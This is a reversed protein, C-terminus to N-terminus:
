EKVTADAAATLPQTRLRSRLVAAVDGINEAHPGVNAVEGLIEGWRLPIREAALRRALLGLRLWALDDPVASGLLGEEGQERAWAHVLWDVEQTGLFAPLNDLFLPELAGFVHALPGYGDEPDSSSGPHSAAHDAAAPPTFTAHGRLRPARNLAIVFEDPSLSADDHFTVTAVTVGFAEQIRTRIEGVGRQIKELLDDVMLGTGITVSVPEVAPDAQAEKPERAVGLFEDLYRQCEDAAEALADALRAGTQDHCRAIHDALRWYAEASPICGRWARGAARAAALDGSRGEEGLCHELWRLASRYEGLGLTAMSTLAALQALDARPVATPRTKALSLLRDMAPEAAGSAAALEDARLLSSVHGLVARLYGAPAEPFSGEEALLIEYTSAAGPLDNATFRMRAIGALCAVGAVAPMDATALAQRLEREAEPVGVPQSAIEQARRAFLAAYREYDASSNGDLTQLTRLNRALNDGTEALSIAAATRQLLQPAEPKGLMLLSLGIQGNAGARDAPSTWPTAVLRTLLDAAEGYRGLLFLANAREKQGSNAAPAGPATQELIRDCYERKAVDDRQLWCCSALHNLILVSRSNEKLSREFLDRAAATENTLLMLAGRVLLLIGPGFPSSEDPKTAADIQDLVALAERYHGLCPNLLTKEFLFNSYLANDATVQHESEQIVQSAAAVNDLARHHWALDRQDALDHNLVLARECYLAAQWHYESYNWADASALCDYLWSIVSYAWADDARTPPGTAYGKQWLEVAHSLKAPDALTADGGAQNVVQVAQTNARLWWGERCSPDLLTLDKLISEAKEWNAQWTYRRGADLLATAADAGRGLQQLARGRLEYAPADGYPENDSTLKGALAEDIHKLAAANHGLLLDLEALLLHMRPGTEADQLSAAAWQSLDTTFMAVDDVSADMATQLSAVAASHERRLAHVHAALMAVQAREHSTDSLTALAANASEAWESTIWPGLLEASRPTLLAHLRAATDLILRGDDRVADLYDQLAQDTAGQLDRAYAYLLLLNPRQEDAPSAAMAATFANAAEDPRGAALLAVGWQSAAQSLTLRAISDLQRQVRPIRPPGPDARPAPVPDLRYGCRTCVSRRVINGCSPCTREAKATTLRGSESETDAM